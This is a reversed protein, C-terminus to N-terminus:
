PTIRSSNSSEALVSPIMSVLGIAYGCFHGLYGSAAPRVRPDNQLALAAIALGIANQAAFHQMRREAPDSSSIEYIGALYGSVLGSGFGCIIDRNQFFRERM